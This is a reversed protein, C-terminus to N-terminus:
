EDTTTLSVRVAEGTASGKGELRIVRTKGDPLRRRATAVYGTQVGDLGNWEYTYQFLLPEDWSFRLCKWGPASWESAPVTVKENPAPLAAPIPKTSPCFRHVYPGQNKGSIDFEEQFAVKNGTEISGLVRYAEDDPKPTKKCKPECATFDELISSDKVCAVLCQHRQPDDTAAKALRERCQDTAAEEAVHGAAEFMRRLKACLESPSEGTETAVTKSPPSVPPPPSSGCGVVLAVILARM